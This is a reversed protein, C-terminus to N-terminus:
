YGLFPRVNLTAKRDKYTKNRSRLASITKQRNLGKSSLNNGLTFYKEVDDSTGTTLKDMINKVASEMTVKHDGEVDPKITIRFTILILPFLM